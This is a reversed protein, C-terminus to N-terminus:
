LYLKYRTCVVIHLFGTMELTRLALQISLILSIKFFIYSKTIM